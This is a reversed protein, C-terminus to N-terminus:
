NNYLHVEQVEQNDEDILKVKCSYHTRIIAGFSNTADVYSKVLYRLNGLNEFTHDIISPFITGDPNKLRDKVAEQCAFKANSQQTSINQEYPINESSGIINLFVFLVILGLCGLGCGNESPTPDKDKGNNIVEKENTLAQGCNSCFKDGEPIEKGCNKCFM